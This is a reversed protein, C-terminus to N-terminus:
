SKGRKGRKPKPQEEEAPEDVPHPEAEVKGYHIPAIEAEVIAVAKRHEILWAGLENDVEAQEQPSLHLGTQQYHELMLVKM